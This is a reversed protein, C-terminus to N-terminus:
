MRSSATFKQNDGNAGLFTVIEIVDIISEFDLRGLLDIDNWEHHKRSKM